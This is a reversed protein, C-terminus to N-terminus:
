KDTQARPIFSARAEEGTAAEEVVAAIIVILARVVFSRALRHAPPM